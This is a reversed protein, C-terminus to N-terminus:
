VLMVTGDMKTHMDSRGTAKGWGSLVEPFQKVIGTMRQDIQEQTQGGSREAGLPPDAEKTIMGVTRVTDGEPQISMIGLAERDRLRLISEKAGRVMYVITTIEAGVRGQDSM